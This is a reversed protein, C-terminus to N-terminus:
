PPVSRPNWVERGQGARYRLIYVVKYGRGVPVSRGGGVRGGGRASCTHSLSPWNRSISAAYARGRHSLGSVLALRTHSRRPLKCTTGSGLAAAGSRGALGVAACASATSRSPLHPALERAM